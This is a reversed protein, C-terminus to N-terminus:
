GRKPTPGDRRPELGDRVFRLLRRATGVDGATMASGSVLAMLEVTSIDARLTGARRARSALLDATENLTTHWERFLASRRGDPTETIALALDRKTAVHDVFEDLWLYLAEGAPVASEAGSPSAALEEGRRRLAEVEDTYVAVLLDERTPFNRYLTANGVGAHKAIEDLPVDPGRETLLERAAALLRAANRAADARPQRRAPM